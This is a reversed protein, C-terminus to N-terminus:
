GQGINLQYYTSFFYELEPNETFQCLAAIKHLYSFFTMKGNEQSHVVAYKKPCGDASGDM